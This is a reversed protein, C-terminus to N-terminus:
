ISKTNLRKTGSFSPAHFCGRAVGLGEVWRYNDKSVTAPNSITVELTPHTAIKKLKACHPPANQNDSHYTGIRDSGTIVCVAVWWDSFLFM